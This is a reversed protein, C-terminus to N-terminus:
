LGLPIGPNIVSHHFRPMMKDFNSVFKMGVTLARTLYQSFGNYFPNDWLFLWHYSIFPWLQLTQVCHEGCASSPADRILSVRIIYHSYFLAM